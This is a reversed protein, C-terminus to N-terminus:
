RRKGAVWQALQAYGLVTIVPFLSAFAILGFGDLVPTRGPINSSLGLGLAVVMPVTITSTTVGGADYALSVIMRPATFTQVVVIVYGALIYAYLPAGAIIRYSGITIGIAVGLAVAIRLGLAPIARRSVEQVKDAITILTPEAITTSFGLTFSFLYIWGYDLWSAQVADQARRALQFAMSKGVPFLAMDLGGILCVMGIGMLGRGFCIRGLRAIPQKLVLMQFFVFFLLIPLLNLATTRILRILEYGNDM